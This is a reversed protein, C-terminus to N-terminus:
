LRIRDVNRKDLRDKKRQVVLWHLIIAIGWVPLRDGSDFLLRDTPDTFPTPHLTKLRSLPFSQGLLFAIPEPHCNMMAIIIRTIVGRSIQYSKTERAMKVIV